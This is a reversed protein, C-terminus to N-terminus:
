HFLFVYFENRQQQIPSSLHRRLLTRAGRSFHRLDVHDSFGLAPTKYALYSLYVSWLQQWTVHSHRGGRCCGDVADLVFCGHGRHEPERGFHEDDTSCVRVLQKCAKLSQSVTLVCIYICDHLISVLATSDGPFRTFGHLNRYTFDTLFKM